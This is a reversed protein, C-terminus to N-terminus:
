VQKIYKKSSIIMSSSEKKMLHKEDGHPYLRAWSISFCFIDIGLEKLLAIDEDIHHYGDSGQRFPYYGIGECKKAEDIIDQTLLRTSTTADSTRKLYPRCDQTDLGKGGEKYDSEYQSSATAGGMIYRKNKAYNDEENFFALTKM